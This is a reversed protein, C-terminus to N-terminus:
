TIFEMKSEMLTNKHKKLEIFSMLIILSRERLTHFHQQGQLQIAQLHVLIPLGQMVLPRPILFRLLLILETLDLIQRELLMILAKLKYFKLKLVLQFITLFNQQSRQLMLSGLQM